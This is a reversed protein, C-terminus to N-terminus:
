CGDPAPFFRRGARGWAATEEIRVQKRPMFIVTVRLWQSGWTKATSDELVPLSEDDELVLVATTSCPSSVQAM